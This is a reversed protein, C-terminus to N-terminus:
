SSCSCEIFISAKLFDRSSCALLELNLNLFSLSGSKESSLSDDGLQLGSDTIKLGSKILFGSSVLLGLIGQSLLIAADLLNLLENIFLVLVENHSLVGSITKGLLEVDLLSLKSLGLGYCHLVELSDASVLVLELISLATGILGLGAKVEDTGLM